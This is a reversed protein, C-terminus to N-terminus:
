IITTGHQLMTGNKDWQASYEMSWQQGMTTGYTAGYQVLNGKNYSQLVMYYQQGAVVGYM